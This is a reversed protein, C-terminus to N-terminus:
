LVRAGTHPVFQQRTIARLDFSPFHDHQWLM